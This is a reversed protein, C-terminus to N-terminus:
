SVSSVQAKSRGSVSADSKATQLQGALTAYIGDLRVLEDHSVTEQIGGEALVYILDCARITNIRHSVLIVTCQGRLQNTTRRLEAEHNGDQASPPEDLVLIPPQTLLARAIAIRQRQGGSLNAGSENLKARYGDPLREIFEAAGAFRAASRIEAESASPRGYAINEWIDTPLLVSD